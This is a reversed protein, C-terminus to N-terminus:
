AVGLSFRSLAAEGAKGESLVGFPDIVVKGAMMQAVKKIDVESFERWPTMIVLADAGQCCSLPTEMREFSPYPQEFSAMPDYAKVRAGRLQHILAVSPSNKISGTDAKYAIGWIAISPDPHKSFVERHLARLTWDRRYELNALWSGVVSSDSGCQSSLTRVTILDRELNGGAIGLGPKLYAHPGIRKDLRLAPAIEGWDAGIKECLEALMNTTVLSSVLFMNISIKALEASEYRMRLIPCKFASLLEAYAAPLETGPTASGVIYREPNLAREVAAGFILTEVQYFLSIGDGRKSACLRELLSRTFGPSVQSHVVITATPKVAGILLDFLDSVPGLESRNQEDTPVDRAIYVVDCSRLSNLDETFTLREKAGKVLEDLGPEFVPLKGRKLNEVLAADPDYAVVEFGKSAVCTSTVLGLHSLGVFGITM